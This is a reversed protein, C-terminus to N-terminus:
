VGRAVITKLNSPRKLMALRRSEPVEYLDGYLDYWQMESTIPPLSSITTYRVGEGNDGNMFLAFDATRAVPYPVDNNGVPSYYATIEQPATFSAISSGIFVYRLRSLQVLISNGNTWRGTAGSSISGRSLGVFTKQAVFSAVLEDYKPKAAATDEYNARYVAVNAGRVTVKFPRGGNDHTYYTHTVDNDQPLIIIPKTTIVRRRKQPVSTTVGM